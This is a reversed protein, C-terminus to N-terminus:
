RNKFTVKSRCVSIFLLKLPHTSTKQRKTKTMNLLYKKLGAMKM